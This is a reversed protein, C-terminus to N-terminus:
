QKHRINPRLLFQALFTDCRKMKRKIIFTPQKHTWANLKARTFRWYKISHTFYTNKWKFYYCVELLSPHFRSPLWVKGTSYKNRCIYTGFIMGVNVKPENTGVPEPVTREAEPPTSGWDLQYYPNAPSKRIQCSKPADGERFNKTDGQINKITNPFNHFLTSLWFKLCFLEYFQINLMNIFVGGWLGGMSYEVINQSGFSTKCTKKCSIIEFSNQQRLINSEYEMYLYASAVHSRVVRSNLKFNTDISCM